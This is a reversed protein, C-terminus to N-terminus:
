EVYKDPKLLYAITKKRGDYSLFYSSSFVYILIHKGLIEERSKYVANLDQQLEDRILKNQEYSRPM